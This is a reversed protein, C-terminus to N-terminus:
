IKLRRLHPIREDNVEMRIWEIKKVKIESEVPISRTM